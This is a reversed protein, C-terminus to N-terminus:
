DANLTDKVQELGDIIRSVGWAWASYDGNQKLEPYMKYFPASTDKNGTMAYKAVQDHIFPVQIFDSFSSADLTGTGSNMGIIVPFPGTGSPSKISSTLTLSQGNDTVVVKLVGGTYSAEVKATEPKTGIEYKEIEAKIEARRCKWDELKEVKGSGDSWEFPNPLKDIKKLLNPEPLEPKQCRKGTNELDYNLPLEETNISIILSIFFIGIINKNKM